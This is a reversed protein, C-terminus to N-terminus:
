FHVTKILRFDNDKFVKLSMPKLVTGDDQIISVGSVGPFKRIELIASRINEGTVPQNSKLLKEIARELIFVADYATGAYQEPVKGHKQRFLKVFNSVIPDNSNSDFSPTTYVVGEAAKGAVKIVEPMEFTACSLMPINLGLEKAEQLLVGMEKSYALCYICDPAAAKIKSLQTRHEVSNLEFTETAVIQGGLKTWVENMRKTLGVGMDDKPHLFAMKRYGLTKFAYEAMVDVELIGNPINSFLYKGANVLRPSVAGVNVLVTKHQDAVPACALTVSSQELIVAPVKNIQILKQLGSVAVRPNTQSDEMIIELESGAIGGKKNIEEVAVVIGEKAYQGYM